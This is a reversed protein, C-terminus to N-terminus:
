YMRNILNQFDSEKMPGTQKKAMVSTANGEEPKKSCRERWEDLWKETLYIIGGNKMYQITGSQVAERLKYYSIGSLEAAKKCPYM